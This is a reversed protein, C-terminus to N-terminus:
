FLLDGVRGVDGEDNVVSEAHGTRKSAFIGRM